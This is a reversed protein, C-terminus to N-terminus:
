SLYSFPPFYLPLPKIIVTTNKLRHHFHFTVQTSSTGRNSDSNGPGNGKVQWQGM